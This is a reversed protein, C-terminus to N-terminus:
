TIACVHPRVCAGSQTHTHTNICWWRHSRAHTCVNIRFMLCPGALTWSSCHVTVHFSSTTSWRRTPNTEVCRWSQPLRLHQHHLDNKHNPFSANGFHPPPSKVQNGCNAIICNIQLSLSLGTPCQQPRTWLRQVSHQISHQTKTSRCYFMIDISNCACNWHLQLIFRRRRRHDCPSSIAFM